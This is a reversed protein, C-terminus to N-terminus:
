FECRIRLLQGSQRKKQKNTKTNVFIEEFKVSMGSAIDIEHKHTIKDYKDVKGNKKLNKFSYTFTLFMEDVVSASVTQKFEGGIREDSEFRKLEVTNNTKNWIFFIKAQPPSFGKVVVYVCRGSIKEDTSVIDAFVLYPMFFATVIILLKM